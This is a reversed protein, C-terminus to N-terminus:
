GPLVALITVKDDAFVKRFLSPAEFLKRIREGRVELESAGIFLFDIGLERALRHAKGADGSLFIPRVQRRERARYKHPDLLFIPFGVAM